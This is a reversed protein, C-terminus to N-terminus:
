VIMNFYFKVTLDKLIKQLDLMENPTITLEQDDGLRITYLTNLEGDISKIHEEVEIFKEKYLM